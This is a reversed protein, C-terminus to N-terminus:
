PLELSLLWNRVCDVENTDLPPGLPMKGGCGAPQRDELKLLLFSQEVGGPAVAGPDGIVEV